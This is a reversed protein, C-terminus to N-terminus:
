ERGTATSTLDARMMLGSVPPKWMGTRVTRRLFREIEAPRGLDLTATGVADVDRAARDLRERRRGTLIVRADASLAQHPTELGIGSSGALVVVTQGALAQHLAGM